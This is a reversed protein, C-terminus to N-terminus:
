SARFRPTRTQRIAADSREMLTAVTDDPEATALGVTFSGHEIRGAIEEFRREAEDLEMDPLACVFEDGGVRVLSDYPRLNAQVAGAVSRLLRDGAAHGDQDNTAKLGDIDIFAFVLPVGARSAREVEHHLVIEGMGRRYAGTLEDVNAAQLELTANSRDHAARERDHAARARDKAARARDAAANARATAAAELALYVSDDFDRGLAKASNEAERDLADAARDRAEAARDREAATEDRQAAHEDREAATKIRILTAADREQKALAREALSRQYESAEDSETHRALDRDAAAQDRDSARQEADSQTQDSDAATQDSDAATQDADAATQDADSAGGGADLDARARSVAKAEGGEAASPDSKVAGWLRARRLGRFFPERTLQSEKSM